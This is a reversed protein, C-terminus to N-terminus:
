KHKAKLGDLWRNSPQIGPAAAAAVAYQALIPAPRAIVALVSAAVALVASVISRNLRTPNSM